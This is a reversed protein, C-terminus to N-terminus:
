CLNRTEHMPTDGPHYTYVNNPFARDGIRFHTQGAAAFGLANYFAIAPANEENTALWVVGTNSQQAHALAAHLLRRGIGKGQHRPRVYLTSIETTSPINEPAPSHTTLRVFGDIGDANQSVWIRQHPDTVLAQTNSLTFTDLAYAAFFPSVGDRLYTGLWVEMSIAAICAADAPRAPRLSM